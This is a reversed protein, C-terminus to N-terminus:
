FARLDEWRLDFYEKAISPFESEFATMYRLTSSKEGNAECFQRFSKKKLFNPQNCWRALNIYMGRYKSRQYYEHRMIYPLCGYRMLVKIRRFTREIDAEDQGDWGCLVYLKTVSHNYKKWCKLGREIQEQEEPHDFAFIYDGIYKANSLREAAEDTMIRIDMGQRFQFRKGTEELEDFVDQWHPYGLINDDWLYIYKRDKDLWEKIHSHFKVGQSCENVCFKCHRFCGRTAFGISYEQYDRFKIAKIGRSIEKGIFKDYLHYDPKCHEIVNPLTMIVGPKEVAEAPLDSGGPPYAIFGHKFGTGGYSVNDYELVEKPVKTFDFVRAIFIHDYDQSHYLVEDWSEILEVEEGLGQNGYWGALKLCVLNPHRTGNDLLDADVIGIKKRMMIGGNHNSLIIIYTRDKSHLLFHDVPIM